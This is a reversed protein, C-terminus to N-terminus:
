INHICAGRFTIPVAAVGCLPIRRAGDRIVLHTEGNAPEVLAARGGARLHERVVPNAPDLTILCVHRASSSSVMGFSSPDDANLVATDDTVRVVLSKLAVLDELTRINGEGVHDGTVNTVAGVTCLDYGIGYHYLGGCATELVAVDITRDSLVGQAAQAGAYDGKRVVAGDIFVGYTTTAGVRFGAARLIHATLLAATTKGNSGTIGIIPIRASLVDSFLRDLTAEPNLGEMSRHARSGEVRSAAAIVRRVTADTDLYSRHPDSSDIEVTGADLGIAKLCRVALRHYDPHLDDPGNAIADEASVTLRYRIGAGAAEVIMGCGTRRVRGFADRVADTDTARISTSEHDGPRALSLEVPYGIENAAEIADGVDVALRYEPVPVQLACLVDYTESRDAAIALALERTEDTRGARVRRGRSGYGMQMLGGQSLRLVPIGRQHAQKVLRRTNPDLSRASAFALFAKRAGAFDFDPEQLDAPILHAPLLHNVLGLALLGVSLGVDSDEYDHVVDYHGPEPRPWTHAFHVDFGAQQQFEIVLREFVHCLTLSSDSRLGDLFTRPERGPDPYARLEPVHECLRDIFDGGLRLVPGSEIEGLYLHHHIAPKLVFTNPGLFLRSESIRM